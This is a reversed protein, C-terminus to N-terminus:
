RRRRIGRFVVHKSHRVGGNGPRIGQQNRCAVGLVRRIRGRAVRYRDFNRRGTWSVRDLDRRRVVAGHDRVRLRRLLASDDRDGGRRRRAVHYATIGNRGRIQRINGHNVARELHRRLGHAHVHREAYGRYHRYAATVGTRNSCGQFKRDRGRVGSRVVPYDLQHIPEAHGDVAVCEIRFRTRKTERGRGGPLVPKLHLRQLAPGRDPGRIGRERHRRRRHPGRASRQCSRGAQHQRLHSGRAIGGPHPKHFCPVCPRVPVHGFTEPMQAADRRVAEHVVGPQAGRNRQLAAPRDGHDVVRSRKGRRKGTSHAAHNQFRRRRAGFSMDRPVPKVAVHGVPPQVRAVDRRKPDAALSHTRCVYGDDGLFIRRHAKGDLRPGLCPQIVNRDPAVIPTGRNGVRVLVGVSVPQRVQLLVRVRIPQASLIGVVRRGYDSFVLPKVRVIRIGVSVAYKVPQLHSM